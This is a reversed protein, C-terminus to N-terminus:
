LVIVPLLFSDVCSGEPAQPTFDQNKYRFVGIDVCLDIQGCLLQKLPKLHNLRVTGREMETALHTKM